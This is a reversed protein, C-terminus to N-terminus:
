RLLTARATRTELGRPTAIEARAFWVGSRLGSAALPFRSTGAPVERDCLVAVRRGSAGYVAIKVRAKEPLALTFAAGDRSGSTGGFSLEVPLPEAPVDVAITGATVVVATPTQAVSLAAGAPYGQFTINSFAGTRSAYTMVTFQEGPSPAFGAPLRVDLTGALTATGSVAFKDFQNTPADGIQVILRGDANQVYNGNVNLTAFRTAAPETGPSVVGSSPVPGQITGVGELTDGAQLSFGNVRVLSGGGILRTLTGLPCPATSIKHNVTIIANALLTGGLAVSTTAANKGITLAATPQITSGAQADVADADITGAGQFRAGPAFTFKTGNLAQNVSALTDGFTLGSGTATVTGSNSLRSRITGTGSLTRGAPV